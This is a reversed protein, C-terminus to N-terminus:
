NKKLSMFIISFLLFFLLIKAFLFEDFENHGFIPSFVSAIAPGIQEYFWDIYENQASIVNVCLSTILFAIALIVVFKEKKM